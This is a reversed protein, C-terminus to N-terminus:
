ILLGIAVLVADDLRSLSSEPFLSSSFGHLFGLVSYRSVPLARHRFFLAFFFVVSDPVLIKM